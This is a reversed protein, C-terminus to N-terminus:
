FLNKLIKVYGEPNLRQPLIGHIQTDKNADNQYIQVWWHSDARSGTFSTHLKVIWSEDIWEEHLFTLLKALFAALEKKEAGEFGGAKNAIYWVEKCYKPASPVYVWGTVDDRISFLTEKKLKNLLEGTIVESDEFIQHSSSVLDGVRLYGQFSYLLATNITFDLYQIHVNQQAAMIRLQLLELLKEWHKSTFHWFDAEKRYLLLDYEGVPPQSLHLLDHHDVQYEKKKPPEMVFVERPYSAAVFDGKNPAYLMGESIKEPEVIPAGILYWAKYVPNYRYTHMNM